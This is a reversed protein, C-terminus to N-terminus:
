INFKKILRKELTDMKEGHRYGKLHLLSHIFLYDAEKKSSKNNIFIEGETKSLPFSLVSTTGTKKRYIRNLKGMLRSDASVVSLDYKKGLVKSKIEQWDKRM